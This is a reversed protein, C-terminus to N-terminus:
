EYSVGMKISGARDAITKQYVEVFDDGFPVVPGVIVDGNIEGHEIMRHVTARVRVNDWRPHDRNPDSETRSFVIQPRNMHAEAGLDLGAKLPGPFAGAVVTGGFAVGRLSAQMAELAGSYEIVVDVGRWDTAERLYAGLDAMALPDLVEDAGLKKAAERREGVPDIAFVPYCGSRKALEVATLGIAGLSFVAVADGVRVNGDRLACFAFTAPDLCTASKWSTEPGITWGETEDIVSLPEFGRFFVLRDGVRYRSVGSGVKEVFGVQMNGLPIPYDWAVGEGPTHMCRGADYGGRMNGHKHVFSEMTGHKEAGHTNRVLVETAGLQDPIDYDQLEIV